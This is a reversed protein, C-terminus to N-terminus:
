NYRVEFPQLIKGAKIPTAVFHHFFKEADEVFRLGRDVRLLLFEAEAAAQGREREADLADGVRLRRASKEGLSNAPWRRWSGAERSGRRRSAPAKVGGRRGPPHPSRPPSSSRRHVSNCTPPRPEKPRDPM